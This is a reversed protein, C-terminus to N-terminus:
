SGRVFVQKISSGVKKWFDSKKQGTYLKLEDEQPPFSGLDGEHLLILYQYASEISKARQTLYRILSLLMLGLCIGGLVWNSKVLSFVIGVFLVVCFSRFFKSEAMTREVASHLNPKHTLLYAMAYKFTNFDGRSVTQIKVSRIGLAQNFLSLNSWWITKIKDYIWGDLFSSVLYIFHGSVYATSFFITGEMWPSDALSNLVFLDEPWGVFILFGILLGGPLLITLLDLLGLNLKDFM